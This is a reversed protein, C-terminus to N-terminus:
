TNFYFTKRFGRSLYEQWNSDTICNCSVGRGEVRTTVRRRWLEKVPSLDM